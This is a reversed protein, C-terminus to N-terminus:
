SYTITIGVTDNYDGAIVNTGAPAKAYATFTAAAAGATYTTAAPFAAATWATAYGSDQYLTYPILAAGAAKLQRVTSVPQLGNDLGVSAVAAGNTCTVTITSSATSAAAFSWTGFGAATASTTCSNSVTASVAMTGAATLADAAPPAILASGLALAGLAARIRFNRFM